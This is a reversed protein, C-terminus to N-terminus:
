FPLDNRVRAITTRHLYPWPNVPNGRVRVEYHLHPSTARGTGGSLAIVQGQRVEQGPVVEFRSLHAYRTEMGNGHDIIVLRGYGGMWEAYTVVGDASAHVPTGRLASLDVGTHIAGEGSFPDTRAGYASMLRGYVPWVGPRVNTQWRRVYYRHLMSYTASKLFDYEALSEKYTPTLRGEGAIDPPGELKQKIGYALSVENALIQLSALQESKQNAEKQLAKYRSRLTNLEQRLANYNSVKWTMRVYSSFIGFACLGIFLFAAAFVYLVRQPVQFRRLRGHLSHALVLIFYQQHM